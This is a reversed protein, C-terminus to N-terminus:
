PIYSTIYGIYRHQSYKNSSVYIYDLNKEQFYCIINSVIEEDIYFMHSQGNFYLDKLYQFINYM